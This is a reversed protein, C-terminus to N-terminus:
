CPLGENLGWAGQAGVTNNIDWCFCMLLLMKWQTEVLHCGEKLSTISIDDPRQKPQKLEVRRTTLLTGPLLSTSRQGTGCDCTPLPPPTVTSFCKGHQWRQSPSQSRTAYGLGSFGRKRDTERVPTDRSAGFLSTLPSTHLRSGREM